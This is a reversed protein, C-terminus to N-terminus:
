KNSIYNNSYIRTDDVYSATFEKVPQLITRLAKLFTYGASKLGFPTRNWAFQGDPTIFANLWKQSPDIPTQWYGSKADFVSIFKANGVKQIVDPIYELPQHSDITYKNVYRYDVALRIGHHVTPGKMICVIPSAQPSDTPEIFGLDM